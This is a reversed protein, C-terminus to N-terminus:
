HDSIMTWGQGDLDLGDFQNLLTSCQKPKCQSIRTQLFCLSPNFQGTLSSEIREQSESTSALPEPKKCCYLTSSFVAFSMEGHLTLFIHQNLYNGWVVLGFRPRKSFSTSSCPTISVASNRTTSRFIHFFPDIQAVKGKSLHSWM